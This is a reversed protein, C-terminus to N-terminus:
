KEDRRWNLQTVGLGTSEHGGLMLFGKRKANDDVLSKMLQDKVSRKLYQSKPKSPVRENEFGYFGYFVTEPPASELSFLAGDKVTKASTLKNHQTIITANRVFFDFASDNVLVIKNAFMDSSLDVNIQWETKKEFPYEELFLTKINSNGAFQEDTLGDDITWNDSLDIGLFYKIDNRYRNLVFPCTIWSFVGPSSRVPFLLLRADLVSICGASIEQDKVEGDNGFFRHTLTRGNKAEFQDRLVGRIGSGPIYPYQTTRERIIPLDVIGVDQGCGIHLPTICKYHIESFIYM